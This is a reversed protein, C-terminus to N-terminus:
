RKGDSGLVILTEKNIRQWGCRAAAGIIAEELTWYARVFDGYNNVDSCADDDNESPEPYELMSELGFYRKMFLIYCDIDGGSKPFMPESEERQFIISYKCAYYHDSGEERHLICYIGESPNGKMNNAYITKWKLDEVKIAIRDHEADNMKKLDEYCLGANWDRIALEIVNGDGRRADYDYVSRRVYRECDPNDCRIEFSIDGMCETQIAFPKGGCTCLKMSDYLKRVEDGRVGNMIGQLQEFPTYYFVPIDQIVIINNNKDRNIPKMGIRGRYKKVFSDCYIKIAIINGTRQM